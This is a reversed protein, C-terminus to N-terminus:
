EKDTDPKALEHLAEEVDHRTDAHKLRAAVAQLRAM